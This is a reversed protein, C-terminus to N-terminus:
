SPMIKPFKNKLAKKFIEYFVKSHVRSDQRIDLTAFHYGFIKIKDIFNDLKDLYLSNHKEIIENRILELKELLDELSIRPSKILKLFVGTFIM